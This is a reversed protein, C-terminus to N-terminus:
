RHPISVAQELTPVAEYVITALRGILSQFSATIRVRLDYSDVTALRGILSQFSSSALVQAPQLPTALRGILSQFWDLSPRFAPLICTALRGILSQFLAPVARRASAPPM